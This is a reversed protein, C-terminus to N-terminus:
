DDRRAGAMGGDGAEVQSAPQGVRMDEHRPAALCAARQIGVGRAPPARRTPSTTSLKPM